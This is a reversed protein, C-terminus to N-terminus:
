IPLRCTDFNLRMWNVPSFSPYIWITTLVKSTCFNLYLLEKLQDLSKLLDYVVMDGTGWQWCGHFTPAHMTVPRSKSCDDTSPSSSLRMARTSARFIHIQLQPLPCSFLILEPDYRERHGTSRRDILLSPHSRNEGLRLAPVSGPVRTDLAAIGQVEWLRQPQRPNWMGGPCAGRRHTDRWRESDKM